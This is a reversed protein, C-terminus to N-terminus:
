VNEHSAKGEEYRMVCYAIAEDKRESWEDLHFCGDDGTFVHYGDRCPLILYIADGDVRGTYADNKFKLKM